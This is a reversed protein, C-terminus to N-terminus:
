SQTVVGTVKNVTYEKRTKSELFVIRTENDMRVVVDGPNLNIAQAIVGQVWNPVSFRVTAM